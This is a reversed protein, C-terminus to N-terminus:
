KLVYILDHREGVKFGGYGIAAWRGTTLIFSLSRTSVYARHLLLRPRRDQAM